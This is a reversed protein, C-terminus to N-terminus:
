VSARGRDDFSFPVAPKECLALMKAYEVELWENIAATSPWHGDDEYRNVWQTLYANDQQQGYWVKVYKGETPEGWKATGLKYGHTQRFANLASKAMYRAHLEPVEMKVSHCLAFFYGWVASPVPHRSALAGMLLKSLALAPVPGLSPSTAAVSYQWLAQGDGFLMQAVVWAERTPQNEPAEILAQSMIFHLADVLEVKCNAIDQPKEKSWWPKWYSDNFEALEQIAALTYDFEKSTGAALWGNSYANFNLNVQNHVMETFLHAHPTSQM